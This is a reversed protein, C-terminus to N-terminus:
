PPSEWAATGRALIVKGDDPPHTRQGRRDSNSRWEAVNMTWRGDKCRGMELEVLSNEGSYGGSM